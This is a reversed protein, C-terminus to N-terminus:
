RIAGARMAAQISDWHKDIDDPSMADIEARTWTKKAGDGNMGDSGSKGGRKGGTDGTAKFEPVDALAAEVADNIADEDPDGDADILEDPDLDVLKLFRAVKASPVGAALAAAKAETRLVRQEARTVRDDAATTSGGTGGASGTGDDTSAAANRAKELERDHKRRERALRKDIAADLDAQTFRAGDGNDDGTTDADDPPTGDGSSGSDTDGGTDDAADTDQDDDTDDSGNGGAPIPALRGSALLICRRGLHDLVTFADLTTM